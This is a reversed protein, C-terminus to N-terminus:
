PTAAFFGFRRLVLDLFPLGTFPRSTAFAVYWASPVTVQAHFSRLVRQPPLYSM